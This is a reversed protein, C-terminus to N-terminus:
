MSHWRLYYLYMAAAMFILVASLVLLIDAAYKRLGRIGLAIMVPKVNSIVHLAASLVLLLQTVLRFTGFPRLRYGGATNYGFATLHLALFLMIAFGSIRRVLFLKNERFYFVGARRAARVTDATLRIGIATHLGILVFLVWALPKVATTGIGTLMYAGLIGHVLFLALILISLLANWKRM